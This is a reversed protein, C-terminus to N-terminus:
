TQSTIRKSIMIVPIFAVLFAILAIPFEPVATTGYISIKDTHTPFAISLMRYSGTKTENFESIMGDSTVIFTDDTGDRKKADVMDRPITVSITGPNDSKLNINLSFTGPNVGIGLIQGGIIDYAITSTTNFVPIMGQSHQLVPPPQPIPTPNTTQQTTVFVESSPQSTGVNNISSVRYYYTTGSELGSKIFSMQVGTNAAITNWTGQVGVKSEIKFGIIPLKGNNSPAIWSIKVTSASILTANAGTPPDPLAQNQQPAPPQSPTQGSDPASSTRTPMVSVIPSPNTQSGGSLITTVSFSYTKNTTLNPVTYSTVSSSTDDISIFNGNIVQDITYGTIMQGYTQSPQVWSIKVSTPSIAVASVITATKTDEPVATSVNSPNGPGIANIATVRYTYSAGTSLGSHIYSTQTSSTNSVLVTYASTGNTYEIKYGTIATGGDSAPPTWSLSVSTASLPTATLTPSGPVTIIQTPVATATNSENGIGVSNIAYVKYTYTHGSQLGTHSYTTLTNASNAVINIPAGSDLTYNIRYGTVPPGGNSTPASWSLNIQTSSYISAVLNQPPNPAIHKPPASSTTPTAPQEPTPSGTGIANIAYVRYIYTKATTLGSHTYTTLNGLTVLTSYTSSPAIRYDIRYGTIPSGGNNQPPSWNLSVSTPSVALASFGTPVDPVTATQAFSQNVFFGVSAIAIISVISTIIIFNSKQLNRMNKDGYFLALRQDKDNILQVSSNNEIM